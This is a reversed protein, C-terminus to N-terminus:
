SGSEKRVKRAHAYSPLGKRPTTAFDHLQEHSMELLGKNAAHLKEPEHEAIAMAIQQKQSVAPM